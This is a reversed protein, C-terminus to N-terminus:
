KLGLLQTKLAPNCTIFSTNRLSAEGDFGFYVGGAEQILCILPAIDWISVVPDVMADIAGRLVLLHGFCDTYGRVLGSEKLLARQYDGRGATEFATSDGVSVFAGALSQTSSVRLPLGDYFAGMGKAAVYTEDLAPMVAVGVVPEGDELLSILTGFLPIGHIFSRTGDIPDITWVFRRDSAEHGFEEGVIGHDPFAKALDLRIAEETKKDAVTVPSGDAKSEILLAQRFYSLAIRAGREAIDTAEELIDAYPTM